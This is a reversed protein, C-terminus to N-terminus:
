RLKKIKLKDNVSINHFRLVSLMKLQTKMGLPFSYFPIIKMYKYLFIFGFPDAFVMSLCHIPKLSCSHIVFPLIGNKVLM